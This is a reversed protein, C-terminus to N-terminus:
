TGTPLRTEAWTPPETAATCTWGWLLYQSGATGLVVGRAVNPVFDGVAYPGQTPPAAQATHLAALRGETLTNLQTNARRIIDNLQRTLAPLGAQSLFTDVPQKM